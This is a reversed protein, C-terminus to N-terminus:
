LWFRSITIATIAGGSVTTSVTAREGTPPAGVILDAGGDFGPSYGNQSETYTGYYNISVSTLSESGM